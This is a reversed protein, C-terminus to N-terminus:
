HVQSGIKTQKLEANGAKMINMYTLAWFVLQYM